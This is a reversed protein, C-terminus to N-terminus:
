QLLHAFEKLTALLKNAAEKPTSGNEGFVGGSEVPYLKSDVISIRYRVTYTTVDMEMSLYEAKPYKKLVKNRAALLELGITHPNFAQKTM